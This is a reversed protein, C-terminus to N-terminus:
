FLLSSNFPFFFFTFVIKNLNFCASFFALDFYPFLFLVVLSRTKRKMKRRRQESDELSQMARSTAVKM